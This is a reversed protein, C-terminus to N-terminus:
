GAPLVVAHPQIDYLDQATGIRAVQRDLLWCPEVQDYVELGRLCEAELHRRRQEGAGVGEPRKPLKAGNTSMTKRLSSM